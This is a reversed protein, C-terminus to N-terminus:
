VPDEPPSPHQHLTELFLLNLDQTMLNVQTKLLGLMESRHRLENIRYIGGRGFYLETLRQEQKSGPKGLRPRPLSRGGTALIVSRALTVGQQHRILFRAPSRGGSAGQNDLRVIEGVCHSLRVRVGLERCRGTLAELVTRARDTVPFLKGTDERKLDVGLSAFWEVTRQVPFAALVNRILHRTGVYDEPTVVDHTVNCRGGGSVLIKAGITKAGDLLDVTLHRGQEACFIAAALGAAGAGVVCVDVATEAMERRHEDRGAAAHHGPEPSGRM